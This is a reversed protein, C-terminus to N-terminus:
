SFLARAEPRRLTILLGIGLPVTIGFCAGLVPVLLSIAGAICLWYRRRQLISVAGALGVVSLVMFISIFGVIEHLPPANPHGYPLSVILCVLWFLISIVCFGIALYAPIDLEPM